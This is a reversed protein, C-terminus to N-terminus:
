GVNTRDSSRVMSKAVPCDASGQDERRRAEVLKRSLSSSFAVSRGSVTTVLEEGVESWGAEFRVENCAQPSSVTVDISPRTVFAEFVGRPQCELKRLPHESRYRQFPSDTVTTPRSLRTTPLKRPRPLLRVDLGGLGAKCSACGIKFVRELEHDVGAPWQGAFRASRTKSPLSITTWRTFAHFKSVAQRTDLRAALESIASALVLPQWACARLTSARSLAPSSIATTLPAEVIAAALSVCLCTGSWKGTSDGLGDAEFMVSYQWRANWTM